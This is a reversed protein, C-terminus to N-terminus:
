RWLGRILAVYFLIVTLLMWAVFVIIALTLLTTYTNIAATTTNVVNYMQSSITSVQASINDIFSLDVLPPLTLNIAKPICAAGGISCALNISNVVDIITYITDRVFNLIAQLANRIATIASELPAFNQGLRLLENELVTSANMIHTSAAEYVPAVDNQFQIFVQGILLLAVIPMVFYVLLFVRLILRM